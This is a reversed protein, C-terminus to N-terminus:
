RWDGVAIFPAWHYPHTDLARERRENLVTGAAHRVAAATSLGELRSKYLAQMWRRTPQDRVEWLSMILTRAGAIMFAHRLGLIGEAAHLEGGGSECASLVVWETEALDLMAVEQATLMGDEALARPDVEQRRNAGALALGSHLLPNENEVDPGHSEQPTHGPDSLLSSCNDAFFAHTALHVIRQGRAQAKFAAETADNGLLLVAGGAGPAAGSGEFLAAIERAEAWTGPLRGFRRGSLEACSARANRVPAALQGFSEAVLPGEPPGQGKALPTPSRDYDPGGLVLAGGDAGGRRREAFGAVDRETSLYHILAGRQLLYGTGESAPLAAFNVRQLSGAPVVLMLGADPAQRAVPEWVARALAAGAERCEAEAAAAAARPTPPATSVQKLWRGVREDISGADGLPVVLPAAQGAHLVFALYRPGHPGEYRAYSVLVAREPLAAAVEKLGFSWRQLRDRFGRSREALRREAHEAVSRVQQLQEELNEPPDASYRQVALRSLEATAEKHEGILNDLEPTMQGLYHRHRSAMEDLVLARSRVLSDFVRAAADPGLQERDELLTLALAQPKGQLSALALAETESFTVITNRYNGRAVEDAHLAADLAAILEGQQRYADALFMEAASLTWSDGVTKRLIRVADELNSVAGELDGTELLLTGLYRRTMGVDSHESGLEEIQIELAREIQRKATAHDQLKMTIRGLNSLSLAYDWDVGKNEKISLAQELTHRARELEGTDEYLGALNNLTRAVTFHQEGLRARYAALAREFTEAARRFQGTQWQAVGLNNLTDAVLYHDPGLVSETIELARAYLPRAGAIDGSVHLGWGLNMLARRVRLDQSGYTREIIALGNTKLRQAEGHQGEVTKMAGLLILARATDPHEPGQCAERIELARAAYSLRRPEDYPGDSVLLQLVEAVPPSQEGYESRRIALARELLESAEQRKGTKSVDRALECLTTAVVPHETGLSRSERITLARRRLAVADAFRGIESRVDALASLSEALELHEPGQVSERVSVAREACATLDPTRPVSSKVWTRALFELVDALELSAPGFKREIEPLLDSAMAQAENYRLQGDLERAAELSASEPEFTEAAASFTFLSCAALIACRCTATRRIPTSRM